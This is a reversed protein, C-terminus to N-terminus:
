CGSMSNPAISTGSSNLTTFPTIPYSTGQSNDQDYQDGMYRVRAWMKWRASPTFTLTDSASVRPTLRLPVMGSGDAVEGQSQVYTVWADNDLKWWSATLESEVGEQESLGSNMFTTMTPDVTIRDDTHTYFGTARLTMSSFHIQFGADYTWTKEPVLNDNGSFGNLQYFRETFSPIWRLRGVNGSFTLWSAPDVMLTIRPNVSAGYQGEQESELRTMETWLGFSHSHVLFGNWHDDHHEVTMEQANLNDSQFSGGATLGNSLHVNFQTQVLSDRSAYDPPVDGTLNMTRFDRQLAFFSFESYVDPSWRLKDTVRGTKTTEETHTYESAALQETKGNWQSIDM